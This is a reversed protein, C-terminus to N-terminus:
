LLKYIVNLIQDKDNCFYLDFIVIYKMSFKFFLNNAM